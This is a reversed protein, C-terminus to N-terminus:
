LSINSCMEPHIFIKFNVIKHMVMFTSSQLHSFLNIKSFVKSIEQNNSVFVLGKGKEHILLKM